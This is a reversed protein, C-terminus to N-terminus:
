DRAMYSSAYTMERQITNIFNILEEQFDNPSDWPVRHGAEKLVKINSQPCNLQITHGVATFKADREGTLWLLPIPLHQLAPRLDEQHGLSWEQMAYALDKRSFDEENRPLMVSGKFVDRKSWRQMLDQWPDNLFHQAWMADEKLRLQKEADTKLGPHTSLLIAGDWLDERELLAHLALRGGLSYGLLINLSHPEKHISDNFHHGWEKLTVPFPSVKFLDIAHHPIPLANWDSPLGLCGHLAYLQITKKM